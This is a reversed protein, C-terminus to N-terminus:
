AEKKAKIWLSPTIFEKVKNFDWDLGFLNVVMQLQTLDGDIARQPWVEQIKLKADYMEEFRKEHEAVWHLWGARSHYGRMFATKACSRVIDEPDRRVIIWQAGPFAAHWLPWMLCMKAGKYFWPGSSYGEETVIDIIEKRWKAALLPLNVAAAIKNIDPLPRQGMPDAGISVFFPKVLTNVIRKNEFMGKRNFRTPGRMDGGWAGCINMTGAVMSTGSRAAGTILIPERDIQM